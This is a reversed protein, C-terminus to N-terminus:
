TEDSSKPIKGKWKDKTSTNNQHGGRHHADRSLPQNTCPSMKRKEEIWEILRDIYLDDEESMKMDKYIHESIEHKSCIHLQTRLYSHQKDKPDPNVKLRHNFRTRDKKPSHTLTFVMYKSGLRGVVYVPHTVKNGNIKVTRGRFHRLSKDKYFGM